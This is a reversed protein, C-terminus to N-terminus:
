VCVGVCVSRHYCLKGSQLKEISWTLLIEFVFASAAHTAADKRIFIFHDSLYVSFMYYDSGTDVHTVAADAESCWHIKQILPRLM